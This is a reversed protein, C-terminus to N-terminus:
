AEDPELRRNPKRLVVFILCGDPSVSFHRSGAAYSVFDGAKFVRGDSDELAGERILGWQELQSLVQLSSAAPIEPSLVYGLEAATRRGDIVGRVRCLAQNM